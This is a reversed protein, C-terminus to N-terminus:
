THRLRKANAKARRHWPALLSTAPAHGASSVFRLATSAAAATKEHVMRQYEAASCTGTAMMVTRRSIVEFSAFSLEAMMVSLALSSGRKRRPM